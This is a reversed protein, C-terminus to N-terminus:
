IPLLVTLVPFIRSTLPPSPPFPPPICLLVPLLLPIENLRPARSAEFSVLWIWLQPFLSLLHPGVGGGGRPGWRFYLIPIYLTISYLDFTSSCFYSASSPTACEQMVSKSVQRSLFFYFILPSDQPRKSADTKLYPKFFTPAKKILFTCEVHL